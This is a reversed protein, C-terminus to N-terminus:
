AGPVKLSSYDIMVHQQYPARSTLRAYYGEVNPLSPRAIPLTFYRYLLSGVPIDAMTLASGCIFDRTALHKDLIGLREGARKISADIPPQNRDAAATRILGWFITTIIDPQVSSTNWEMWQDAVAFAKRDQPALTGRGYTDALYRVIVNSEWLLFGNDDLVPVLRMPNMAAYESTDTRGHVGGADIREHPLGLEGVAWMVKQVNSSTARGWIKVTM